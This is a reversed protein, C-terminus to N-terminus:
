ETEEKEEEQKNEMVSKIEQDILKILEEQEKQAKEKEEKEEQENKKETDNRTHDAENAPDDNSAASVIEKLIKPDILDILEQATEQDSIKEGSNVIEEFAELDISRTILNKKQKMNTYDKKNKRTYAISNTEEYAPQSVGFSVEKLAVSKLYRLNGRNEVEHPIFGFSLNQCDGRKTIEWLDNSYTTNGLYLKCYLGDSENRLELTGSKTSGLIQSDNHNFYAYVNANDNITKRFATDTIVERFGGLDVSKSNFPIIAEIIRKGENNESTRYEINKNFLTKNITKM